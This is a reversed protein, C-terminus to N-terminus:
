QAELIRRIAKIDEKQEAFAKKLNAQESKIVAVDTSISNVSVQMVEQKIEIKQVKGANVEQDNALTTHSAIGGAVIVFLAIWGEISIRTLVSSNSIDDQPM